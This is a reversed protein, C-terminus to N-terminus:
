YAVAGTRVAFERLGPLRQPTYLLDTTLAKIAPRRVEEPAERAIARLAAYARGDDGLQHWMRATDTWYRARRETTPLQAPIFSSVHRVGEDPTQLANYTSISYMACEAPSAQITFLGLPKGGAPIRGVTETAEDLLDLATGRQKISAATYAATLMLCTRAALAEPTPTGREVGLTTATNILFDVAAPSRGARRMTIAVV